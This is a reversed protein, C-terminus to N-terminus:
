ELKEYFTTKISDLEELVYTELTEVISAMVIDQDCDVTQRIAQTCTTILGILKECREQFVNAM